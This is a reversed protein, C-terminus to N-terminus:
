PTFAVATGKTVGTDNFTDVTFYTPVGVNLTHVHLATAGYVQYSSFLRDKAVGYRVIYGDANRAANWSIEAQRADAADRVVRVGGAKQPARGLGSGFLRLGSLSFKAGGPSHTNTIRAYRATVPADLQAYDNPADRKNMSRDVITTWKKGNASVDLKYGYGDQLRGQQTAGEDAFNIQAADIRCSKGMDVQLWEGADGTKASWWSRIDEDFANGIPHGDLTSSATAPKQYSLLMWGPSNGKTTDRVVGPAYQPYDGLYTDSVLQGDPTFWTPFMGLRREFKNRISISMTSLRWYRGGLDQFTTSHGVGAAFGTPKFSFPSYPAYTFPGLPHDGVYVSDNYSKLETGPASYQLYYKGVHKTMWAGEIWAGSDKYPPAATPEAFIEAGHLAIEGKFFGIPATLPKFGNSPDVEQGQIPGRDSCGAYLYMRGDDDRFLDPDGQSKTEGVLKWQGRGPDVAEYVGANIATWYLKGNNEVVGPADHDLPLDATTVFDWHLCDKSRWYGGSGTAFLWYEGKYIIAAPDAATRWAPAGTQFRYPLDLPNCFTPPRDAGGARAPAALLLLPSAFLTALSLCTQVSLAKTPM